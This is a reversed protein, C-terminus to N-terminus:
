VISKPSRLRGWLLPLGGFILMLFFSSGVLFLILYVLAIDPSILDSLVRTGLKIWLWNILVVFPLGLLINCTMHFAAKRNTCRTYEREAAELYRKLQNEKLKEPSPIERLSKIVPGILDYQRLCYTCVDLHRKFEESIPRKPLSDLWDQFQLCM